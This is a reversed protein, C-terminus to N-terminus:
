DDWDADKNWDPNNALWKEADSLSSDGGTVLPEIYMKVEKKIKATERKLGAGDVAKGEKVIHFGSDPINASLAMNAESVSFDGNPDASASLSFSSMTDSASGGASRKRTKMETHFNNAMRTMSRKVMGDLQPAVSHIYYVTAPAFLPRAEMYSTGFEMMAVYKYVPIRKGKPKRSHLKQGYKRKDISVIYRSGVKKSIISRSAKGTLRWPGADPFGMDAKYELYAEDLSKWNTGPVHVSGNMIATILTKYSGVGVRTFFGDGTSDVWKTMLAGVTVFQRYAEKLQSYFVDFGKGDISFLTLRGRSQLM